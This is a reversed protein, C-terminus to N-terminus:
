RTLPGGASAADVGRAFWIESANNRSDNWSVVIDRGQVGIGKFDGLFDRTPGRKDSVEVNAEFGKSFDVMRAYYTSLQGGNRMDTWVVHVAGHKDVAVWPQFQRSAATNDNVRKPASFTKGSDESVIAWVDDDNQAGPASQRSAWTIAVVKGTPDSANAVIPHSRPSCPDFCSTGQSSVDQASSLTKGFDTSKRYHVRSNNFDYAMHVIGDSTTSIGTGHNLNGISIPEGWTTGHDTSRMFGGPSGLWTVYVTGDGTAGIWPKDLTQRIRKWPTWTGGSDTSASFIIYNTGLGGSAYDQCAIYLNGADDIAVAPDGAFARGGAAAMTAAFFNKSWTEGGDRSISYGCRGGVRQDIFGALLLGDRGAALVVETQLGKAGDDDIQVNKGFKVPAGNLTGDDVAAADRGSDSVGDQPGADVTSSAADAVARGADRRGADTPGTPTTTSGGADRRPTKGADREGDAPEDSVDDDADDVRHAACASLSLLVMTLAAAIRM